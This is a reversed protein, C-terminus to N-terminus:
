ELILPAANFQTRSEQPAAAAMGTRSAALATQAHAEEMGAGVQVPDPGPPPEPLPESTGVVRVVDGVGVPLPPSPPPPVGHVTSAPGVWHSAEADAIGGHAVSQM